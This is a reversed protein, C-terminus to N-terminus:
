VPLLLLKKDLYLFGYLVLYNIIFVTFYSGAKLHIKSWIRPDITQDQYKTPSSPRLLIGCHTKLTM